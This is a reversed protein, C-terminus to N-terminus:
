ADASSVQQGNISLGATYIWDTRWGWSVVETGDDFLIILANGDTDWSVSTITKSVLLARAEELGIDNM